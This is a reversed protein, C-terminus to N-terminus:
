GNGGGKLAPVLAYLLRESGVRVEAKGEAGARSRPLRATVVITQAGRREVSEILLSEGRFRLPMGRHFLPAGAFAAVVAGDARVSASGTAYQPVHVLLLALLVVVFTAVVLWGARRTWTRDLRLPEPGSTLPQELERLARLRFPSEEPELLWAALYPSAHAAVAEAAAIELPEFPPEAARRLAVLVAM